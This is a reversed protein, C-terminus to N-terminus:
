LWIKYQKKIILIFSTVSNLWVNNHVLNEFVACLEPHEPEQKRVKTPERGARELM